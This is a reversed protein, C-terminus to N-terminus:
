LQWGGCLLGSNLVRCVGDGLIEGPGIWTPVQIVEHSLEVPCVVLFCHTRSAWQGRLWARGVVVLVLQRESRPWGDLRQM